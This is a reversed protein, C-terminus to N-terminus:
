QRQESIEMMLRAVDGKIAEVEDALADAAPKGLRKETVLTIAALRDKATKQPDMAIEIAVLLLKKLVEPTVVEAVAQRCENSPRGGGRNGRSVTHGPLLRGTDPDRGGGNAMNEDMNETLAMSM